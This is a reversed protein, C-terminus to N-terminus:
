HDDESDEKAANATYHGIIIPLLIILQALLYLVPALWDLLFVTLLTSSIYNSSKYMLKKYFYIEQRPTENM